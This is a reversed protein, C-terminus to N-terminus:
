HIRSIPEFGLSALLKTRLDVITAHLADTIQVGTGFGVVSPGNDREAIVMVAWRHSPPPPEAYQSIETASYVRVSTAGLVTLECELQVITTHEDFTLMPKGEM